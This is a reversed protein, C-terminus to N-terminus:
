LNQVSSPQALGSLMQRLLTTQSQHNDKRRRFEEVVIATGQSHGPEPERDAQRDHHEAESWEADGRKAGREVTHRQSEEDAHVGDTQSPTM